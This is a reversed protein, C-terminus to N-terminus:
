SVFLEIKLFFFFSKKKIIFFYCKNKKSLKSIISYIILTFDGKFRGGLILQQQYKPISEHQREDIYIHIIPQFHIIVKVAQVYKIANTSAEPLLWHRPLAQIDFPVLAGLSLLHPGPCFPPLLLPTSLTSDWLLPPLEM